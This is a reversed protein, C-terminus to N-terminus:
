FLELRVVETRRKADPEANMEDRLGAAQDCTLRATRDRYHVLVPGRSDTADFRCWARDAPTLLSRLELALDIANQM